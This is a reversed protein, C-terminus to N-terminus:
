GESEAPAQDPGRDGGGQDAQRGRGKHKEVLLIDDQALILLDDQGLLIRRGTMPEYFVRDGTVIPSPTEDNFGLGIALVTGHQLGELVALASGALRMAPQVLYTLGPPRLEALRWAPAPKM